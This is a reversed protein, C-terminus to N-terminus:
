TDRVTILQGHKSIQITKLISIPMQKRCLIINNRQTEWVFNRMHIFVIGFVRNAFRWLRVICIKIGAFYAIGCTRPREHRYSRRSHFKM